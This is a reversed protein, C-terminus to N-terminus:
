TRLTEQAFDTIAPPGINLKLSMNINKATQVKQRLHSIQEQSSSIDYATHGRQPPSAMLKSRGKITSWIKPLAKRIVPTRPRSQRQHHNLRGCPGFM